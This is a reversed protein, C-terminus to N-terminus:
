SIGSSTPTSSKWHGYQPPVSQRSATSSHDPVDALRDAVCDEVPHPPDRTAGLLAARERGVKQLAVVSVEGIDRIM